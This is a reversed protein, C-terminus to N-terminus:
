KKIQRNSELVMSYFELIREANADMTLGHSDCFGQPISIKQYERLQALIDGKLDASGGCQNEVLFDIWLKMNTVAPIGASMYECFKNPSALMMAANEESPYLALGLDYQTMQSILEVGGYNGEYHINAYEHDLQKLYDPVMSSYIHVHVGAEALKVFIPEYFRYPMAASGAQDTITGEYVCHIEGDAESLKPLYEVNKLSSLPYNGM